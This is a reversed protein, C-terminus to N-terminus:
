NVVDYFTAAMLECGLVNPHLGDDQLYSTNWNFAADLDVLAVNMNAALERIMVNLREVGSSIMRHEGCVPTLTAIVPITKNNIAVQVIYQLNDIAEDEGYGMILDNAGFLILLFGPKYENLVDQVLAAGVYSEAGPMGYNIVTRQMMLALKTPYSDKPSVGSGYTISDGFAVYLYPSNTGFDHGDALHSKSSECGATMLILVFAGAAALAMRRLLGESRLVLAIAPLRRCLPVFAHFIGFRSKRRETKNM